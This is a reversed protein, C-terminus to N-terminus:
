QKECVAKGEYQKFLPHQEVVKRADICAQRTKFTAKDPHMVQGNVLVTIVLIWTM